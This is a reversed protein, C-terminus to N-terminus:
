FPSRANKPLIILTTTAVGKFIIARRFDIIVRVGATLNIEVWSQICADLLRRKVLRIIMKLVRCELLFILLLRRYMSSDLTLLHITLTENSQRSDAFSRILGATVM